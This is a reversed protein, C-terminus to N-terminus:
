PSFDSFMSSEAFLLQSGKLGSGGV